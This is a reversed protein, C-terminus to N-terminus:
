VLAPGALPVFRDLAQEWGIRPEWGTVHRVPDANLTRNWSPIPRDPWSRMGARGFLTSVASWLHDSLPRRSRLRVPVGSLLSVRAILDGMRVPAPGALNFIRGGTRGTGARAVTIVASVLDEVDLIDTMVDQVVFVPGARLAGLLRRPLATESMGPVDPLRLITANRGAGELIAREARLLRGAHGKPPTLLAADSVKLRTGGLHYVDASSIQILHASPLLTSLGLVTRSMEGPGACSILLRADPSARAIRLAIAPESLDAQCTSAGFAELRILASRSRGVGMVPVGDALLRRAIRGGVHGTAGLIIVSGGRLADAIPPAPEARRM